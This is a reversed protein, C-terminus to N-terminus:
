KRQTESSVFLNLKLYFVKYIRAVLKASVNVICM